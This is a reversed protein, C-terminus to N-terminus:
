NQILISRSEHQAKKLLPLLNIKWQTLNDRLEYNILEEQAITDQNEMASALGKLIGLLSIHQTRINERLAHGKPLIAQSLLSSVEVFRSIQDSDYNNLIKEILMQTLQFSENLFDDVNHQSFNEIMEM